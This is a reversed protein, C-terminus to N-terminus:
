VEIPMTATNGVQLRGLIGDWLAIRAEIASRAAHAARDWQDQQDAVLRELMRRAPAGHNEGDFQIHRVLYHKFLTVEEEPTEWQSLIRQFMDPIIDERDGGGETEQQLTDDNRWASFELEASGVVLRVCLAPASKASRTAM